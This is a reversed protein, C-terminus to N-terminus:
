YVADIKKTLYPRLDIAPDDIPKKEALIKQYGYDYEDNVGDFLDYASINKNEICNEVILKKKVRDKSNRENKM